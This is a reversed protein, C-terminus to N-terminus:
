LPLRRQNDEQNRRKNEQNQKEVIGENLVNDVAKGSIVPRPVAAFSEVVGPVGVVDGEEGVGLQVARFFM